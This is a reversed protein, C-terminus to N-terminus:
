CGSSTSLTALRPTCNWPLLAEIGEVSKAAPLREMVHRLWACPERGNSKTTEILSYM